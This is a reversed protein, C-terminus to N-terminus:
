GQTIHEREPTPNWIASVDYLGNNSVCQRFFYQALNQAKPDDLAPEISNTKVGAWKLLPIM